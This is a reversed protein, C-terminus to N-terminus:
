KVLNRLEIRKALRGAMHPASELLTSELFKAQGGNPHNLDLDEHQEYAYDVNENGVTIDCRIIGRSIVPEQVVHSDRLDGEEVPTRKMSEKKEINMEAKEARAAERPFERVLGALKNRM